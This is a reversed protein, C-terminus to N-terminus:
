KKKTQLTQSIMDQLEPMIEIIPFEDFTDLWEIPPLISNDATKAFVWAINYFTEINIKSVDDVDVKIEGHRDRKFGGEVINM